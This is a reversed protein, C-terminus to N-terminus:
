SKRRRGDPRRRWLVGRCHAQNSEWEHACIDRGAIDLVLPWRRFVACPGGAPRVVWVCAHHAPGSMALRYQRTAAQMGDDRLVKSYFQYSMRRGIARAYAQQPSSLTVRFGHISWASVAVQGWIESATHVSAGMRGCLTWGSRAFMCQLWLVPSVFCRPPAGQSMWISSAPASGFISFSFGSVICRHRGRKVRIVLVM